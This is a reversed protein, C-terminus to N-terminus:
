TYLHRQNENSLKDLTFFLSATNIAVAVSLVLKVTLNSSPAELTYWCSGAPFAVETARHSPLSQACAIAAVPSEVETSLTIAPITIAHDPTTLGLCPIDLLLTGFLVPTYSWM